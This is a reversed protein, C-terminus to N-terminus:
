AERHRMSTSVSFASFNVHAFLSAANLQYHPLRALLRNFLGRPRNYRFKVARLPLRLRRFLIRADFVADPPLRKSVLYEETQLV